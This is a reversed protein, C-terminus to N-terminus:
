PYFQTNTFNIRDRLEWFSVQFVSCAMLYLIQGSLRLATNSYQYISWPRITALNHTNFSISLIAGQALILFTITVVSYSKNLGCAHLTKRKLYWKHLTDKTQSSCNELM